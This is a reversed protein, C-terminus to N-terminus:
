ATRLEKQDTLEKYRAFDGSKIAEALEDAPQAPKKGLTPAPPPALSVPDGAPAPQNATLSLSAEIRGLERAITIANPSMLLRNLVDPHATLHTLLAAPAASTLLEQAIVNAATMSEGPGLNDVTKASALRPDVKSWFQPDSAVAEAMRTSFTDIRGQKKQQVAQTRQLSLAQYQAAYRTLDVLSAEPYQEFFQTDTLPARDIDPTQITEILSKAPAPSSAAPTADPTPRLHERRREEAEVEARLAARRSLLSQIDQELEPKRTEANTRSPKGPESAPPSLSETRDAQEAPQAPSSDAPPTEASGESSPMEGTMRWHDMQTSNLSELAPAASTPESAVSQVDSM